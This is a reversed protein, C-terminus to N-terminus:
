IAGAAVRMLNTKIKERRMELEPLLFPRAKLNVNRTHASVPASGQKTRRQHAKVNVTGKFGKEWVRGYVVNTGVRGQIAEGAETLKFNISRKLRGTRVNLSQGTLRNAKVGRLIELGLLNIEKRIAERVKDGGVLFRREVQVAGVVSAKIYDTSM